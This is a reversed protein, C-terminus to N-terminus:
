DCDFDNSGLPRCQPPFGQQQWYKLIGTRRIFDRFQDTQRMRRHAKNWIIFSDLLVSSSDIYALVIPVTYSSADPNTASFTTLSHVLQSHDNETSRLANYLKEHENWGYLVQSDNSLVMFATKEGMRALLSLDAERAKVMGTELMRTFHAFAEIDRGEGALVVVFNEACPASLPSYGICTAFDSLAGEIDGLSLRLLGRWNLASDDRPNIEIADSLDNLLKAFDLASNQEPLSQVVVQVKAAIAIPSRPELELARDAFENTLRVQENRPTDSFNYNAKLFTLAARMEWAAAFEPDQEIAAALLEDAVDLETRSQYLSRAHLFMEYASLNNTGVRVAIEDSADFGLKEALAAVIAKSIEDQIAFVNEATLPRDFTDSWLHKDDAADILQATIRLTDGAKRVSGEVVHRVNLNAAIEPIGLDRGKFQFASTRSTVDLEDVGALLNLIEESIGDSFYEQDGDPSLDAFPLVAITAASVEATTAVSAQEDILIEAPQFVQWAFVLGVILVGAIIVFDLKRWSQHQTESSAADTRVIGDATLDFVWSVIISIPLGVILLGVVIGDFWAPLQMSEELTTAIQVLLWGVVLYAGVVRVVNRRRLEQFFNNM